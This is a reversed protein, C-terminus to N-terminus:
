SPEGRTNALAIGQEIRPLGQKLWYRCQSKLIKGIQNSKNSIFKM